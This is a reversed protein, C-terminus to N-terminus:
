PTIKRRAVTVEIKTGRGPASDVLLAAGVQGAREAMSRMGLHGTKRDAAAPDFGRGDDQVTMRFEKESYALEVAIRTAEAHNVANNIAERGILFMAAQAAYALPAVDGKTKLQFTTATGETSKAGVQALADPLTSDELVPLRIDLLMQRAERM